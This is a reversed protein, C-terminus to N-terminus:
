AALQLSFDLSDIRAMVASTTHNQTQSQSTANALLQILLAGQEDVGTAFGAHRTGNPHTATVALGRWAHLAQWRPRFPAFGNSAFAALADWWAQAIRTGASQVDGTNLAAAGVPASQLNLGVGAVVWRTGHAAVSEVLIGGLKCGDLLLDNPWKLKVAHPQLAEAAAVGLALSLGNLACTDALPYAISMLLAHGPRADWVRGMRGRGATQAGAALLQARALNGARARRMLESNTSDIEDAWEFALGSPM